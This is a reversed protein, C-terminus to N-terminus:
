LHARGIDVTEAVAIGIRLRYRQLHLHKALISMPAVASAELMGTSSWRDRWSAALPGPRGDQYAGPSRGRTPGSERNRATM